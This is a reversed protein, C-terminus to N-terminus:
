RNKMQLYFKRHFEERDAITLEGIRIRKIIWRIGAHYLVANNPNIADQLMELCDAVNTLTYEAKIM